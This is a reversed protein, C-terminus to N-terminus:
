NAVTADVYHKDGYWEKHDSLFEIFTDLHTLLAKLKDDAMNSAYLLDPLKVLLRALHTAGYILCPPPPDQNYVHEPLLSWTAISGRDVLMSSSSNSSGSTAPNGVTTATTNSSDAVALQEIAQPNGGNGNCESDISRHSRLRRKNETLSEPREDVSLRNPDFSPLHAYEADDVESKIGTEPSSSLEQKVNACVSLETAQATVVQDRERNYLLLDTLTYDFYVRLGDVLEKCTNMNKQVHEYKLKGLAGTNNSHHHNNNLSTITNTTNNGVSGGGYLSHRHRTFQQQQPQQQHSSKDGTIRSLERNAYHRWYRELIAVVHPEAPLRLVKHKSNILYSDHELAHRLTTTLQLPIALEEDGSSNSESSTTVGTNADDTDMLVPSGSSGDESSQAVRESLKREKRKKRERRYLYAGLQLQAKDALDKQLQRNEPTDKLVFDESVCRDWSSNWGQFHILYEVTKRGRQDKNVIVQLVKSDYLVKAKTPDPEYCLVREGDFFKLKVGRTSVM